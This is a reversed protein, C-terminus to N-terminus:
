SRLFAEMILLWLKLTTFYRTYQIRIKQTKLTFDDAFPLIKSEANVPLISVKPKHCFKIFSYASVHKIM